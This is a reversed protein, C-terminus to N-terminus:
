RLYPLRIIILYNEMCNTVAIMSMTFMLQLGASLRCYWLPITTTVFPIVESQYMGPSHIVLCQSVHTWVLGASLRCCRLPITSTVFPIVESQYMGPSHIVLCQSVHTWVLGASLRCCRLPIITTVFPIVESQYMAPSHIVPVPERTLVLSWYYCSIPTQLM